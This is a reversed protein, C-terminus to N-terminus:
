RAPLSMHPRIERAVHELWLGKSPHRSQINPDLQAIASPGSYGKGVNNPVAPLTTSSDIPLLLAWYHGHQLRLAHLYSM